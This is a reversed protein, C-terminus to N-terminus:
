SPSCRLLEKNIFIRAKEENLPPHLDILQFKPSHSFQTFFHISSSIIQITARVASQVSIKIHYFRLQLKGLFNKISNNNECLDPIKQQRNHTFHYLNWSSQSNLNYQYRNWIAKNRSNKTSYWLPKSIFSFFVLDKHRKPKTTFLHRSNKLLIKREHLHLIRGRAAACCRRNAKFARTHIYNEKFFSSGQRFSFFCIQERKSKPKDM